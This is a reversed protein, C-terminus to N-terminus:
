GFYIDMFDWMKELFRGDCLNIKIEDAKDSDSGDWTKYKMIVISMESIRISMTTAGRYMYVYYRRRNNNIGDAKVADSEVDYKKLIMDQIEALLPDDSKKIFIHIV